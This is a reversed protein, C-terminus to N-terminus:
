GCLECLFGCLFFFIQFNERTNKETPETSETTLFDKVRVKWSTERQPSIKQGTSLLQDLSIKERSKRYLKTSSRAFKDFNIEIEASQEVSFDM